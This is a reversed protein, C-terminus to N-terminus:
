KGPSLRKAFFTPGNRDSVGFWCAMGARPGTQIRVRFHNNDPNLSELVRVQTGAPSIAPNSRLFVLRFGTDDSALAAHQAQALADETPWCPTHIAGRGLVSLDGIIPPWANSDALAPETVALLLAALILDKNMM